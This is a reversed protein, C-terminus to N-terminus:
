CSRAALRTWCRDCRVAWFRARRPLSACQFVLFTCATLSVFIYLGFIDTGFCACVHRCQSCMGKIAEADAAHEVLKHVKTATEELERVGFVFLGLASSSPIMALSEASSLSSVSAAEQKSGAQFASSAASSPVLQRGTAESPVRCQLWPSYFEILLTRSLLKRAEILTACAHAVLQTTVRMEDTTSEVDADDADSAPV